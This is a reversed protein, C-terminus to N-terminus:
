GFPYVWTYLEGTLTVVIKEAKEKRDNDMGSNSMSNIEWIMRTKEKEDQLDKWCLCTYIFINTHM